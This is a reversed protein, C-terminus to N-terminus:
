PVIFEADVNQPGTEKVVSVEEGDLLFKIELHTNTTSALQSQAFVVFYYRERPLVNIRTEYPLDIISTTPTPKSGIEYRSYAFSAKEVDGTIKVALVKGSSTAGATEATPHPRLAFVLAISLILTVVLLAGILLHSKKM